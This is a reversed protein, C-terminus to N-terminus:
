RNYAYRHDRTGHRHGRSDAIWVRNVRWEHRGAVYFRVRTGHHYRTDWYGPVWVKIRTEKWYGCCTSRCGDHVVVFGPEPPCTSRYSDTIAHGIILGGIFGGIAAREKSGAMAPSPALSLIAATCLAINALKNM